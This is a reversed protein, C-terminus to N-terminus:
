EYKQWHPKAAYVSKYYDLRQLKSASEEDLIAIASHHMQLISAPLMATIPGEAMGAVALTKSAGFALLVCKRADMISGIGMTIVHNPIKEDKSFHQANDKLTQGTLTKIRTRSSLSSSPENFGIHGDTGLGLLQLDIGGAKKIKAEYDECFHPIDKALGDPIHTNTKLINVHKFFNEQMFHHYSSAHTSSLGVYEDLNFSVIKSFDLGEDRHLRILEGYLELPTSGTALGLVSNPKKQIQQAIILAGVRSAESKNSKILLEM